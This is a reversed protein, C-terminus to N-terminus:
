QQRTPHHPHHYSTINVPPAEKKIDVVPPNPLSETTTQHTDRTLDEQTAIDDITDIVMSKDDIPIVELTGTFVSGHLEKPQAPKSLSIDQLTVKKKKYWIKLFINEINLNITGVSKM